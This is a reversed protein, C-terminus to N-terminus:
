MGTEDASPGFIAPVPIDNLRFYLCLQARHHIMHNLIFNRLVTVRPITFVKHGGSLMTWEKMLAEDDIASLAAAAEEAYKKLNELIEARSKLPETKPPEKGEPAIDLSEQLTTPKVWSPINSIHTALEGLTWSKEHPRWDLKDEPIRELVKITTKLDGNFERLLMENLRM